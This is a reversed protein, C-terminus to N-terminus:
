RGLYERALRMWFTMGLPLMTDDFDYTPSHLFGCPATNNAHERAGNGMFVYCGPKRALMFSFDEAVMTPVSQTHTREKGVLSEMVRIVRATEEPHNVVPPYNRQFDLTATAHFASAIGEATERLRSEILDLVSTSFTRVTGTLIAKDPVINFASGAHIQTISLVAADLPSKNRTMINQWGQAVQVAIMVPDVTRQPQAGHGGTGRITLTFTNSSAMIPGPTTAFEGIAYDPWNHMGFIADMPCQGFLGEDIMRRAGGYNEEAPQFIAYVTGDFDGHRKLDIAAGLLMATHGDHGCAHMKGAHVSAHAFTNQEQLPLADMDARIGIARPSNGKKVIGVIGTKGMGRLVPIHHAALTNAILNATRIEEYALEPHAHIDRRIGQIDALFTATFDHM